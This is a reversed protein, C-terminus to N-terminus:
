PSVADASVMLVVNVASTGSRSIERTFAVACDSPVNMLAPAKSSTRAVAVVTYSLFSSVM